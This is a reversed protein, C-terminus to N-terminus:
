LLNFQKLTSSEPLIVPNSVEHRPLDYGKKQVGPYKRTGFIKNLEKFAGQTRIIFRGAHGGPALQPQYFIRQKNFLSGKVHAQKDQNESIHYLFSNPKYKIEFFM